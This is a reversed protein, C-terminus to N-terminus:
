IVISKLIFIMYDELRTYSCGYEEDLLKNIAEITM